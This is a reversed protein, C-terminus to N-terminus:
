VEVLTKKGIVFYMQMIGKHKVELTGRNQFIFEDKVLQYTDESINVFGPESSQEMRCATNVTDGWIDYAFKKIGVVGAVLSGSHIGIRIDFKGGESQRKHTFEMIELATNVTNIAHHKDELPLGCVALYADGITKIKELNNREIIEDFKGFCYDIEDVLEEPGMTESIKTFNVFDTFLVSVHNFFRAKSHGNDKLETVIESPLINLLLEDSRKKGEEIIKNKENLSKFAENKQNEFINIVMFVLVLHGVVALLNQLQIYKSDMMIEFDHGKLQMVGFVVIITAGIFLWFIAWRFNLFLLAMMPMMVMLQPDTTTHYVGGSIYMIGALASGLTLNYANALITLSIKQKLLFPFSLNLVM